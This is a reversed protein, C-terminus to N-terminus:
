TSGHELIEKLVLAENYEEYRAGYVLTVTRGHSKDRLLQVPGKKEALEKRYRAQFEKWKAPDHGFWKRLETSPAVDKLWLDVSAREKTLGRPWLRDVLIRLGDGSSPAEYVRKIRIM